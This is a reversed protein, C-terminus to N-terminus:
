SKDLNINKNKLWEKFKGIIELENEEKWNNIAEQAQHEAEAIEGFEICGSIANTASKWAVDEINQKLQKRKAINELNQNFQERM